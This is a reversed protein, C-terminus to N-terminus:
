KLTFFLFCEFYRSKFDFSLTRLVLLLLKNKPKIKYGKPSLPHTTYPLAPFSGLTSFPFLFSLPSSFPHFSSFCSHSLFHTSLLFRSLAPLLFPPDHSSLHPAQQTTSVEPKVWGSRCSLLEGQESCCGLPNAVMQCTAWIRNGM